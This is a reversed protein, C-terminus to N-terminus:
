KFTLINIKTKGYIREEIIKFFKIEPIITKYNTEVVFITSKNIKDLLVTFM